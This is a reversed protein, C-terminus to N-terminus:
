CFSDVVLKVRYEASKCMSAWCLARIFVVNEKKCTQLNHVLNKMFFVKDVPKDVVQLNSYKNLNKGSNKVLTYLDGPNFSPLIKLDASFDSDSSPFATINQVNCINEKNYGMKELKSKTFVNDPDPDVIKDRLEPIKQYNKIRAVLEDKKGSTRAGRCSLWHKLQKVTLQKPDKGGLSAGPIDDETLKVSINESIDVFQKNARTPNLNEAMELTTTKSANIILLKNQLIRM